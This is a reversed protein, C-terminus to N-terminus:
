VAIEILSAELLAVQRELRTCRDRWHKVEAHSSTRAAISGARAALLKAMAAPSIAKSTPYRHTTVKPAVGILDSIVDSLQAKVEGLLVDDPLLGIDISLIIDNVTASIGPPAGVILSSPMALRASSIVSSLTIIKVGAVKDADYKSKSLGNALYYTPYVDIGRAVLSTFDEIATCKYSGTPDINFPPELVYVGSADILPIM